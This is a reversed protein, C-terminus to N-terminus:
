CTLLVVILKSREKSGITINSSSKVEEGVGEWRTKSMVFAVNLISVEQSRLLWGKCAMKLCFLKAVRWFSTNFQVAPDASATSRPKSFM